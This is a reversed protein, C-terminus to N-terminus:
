SEDGPIDFERRFQEPEATVVAVEWEPPDAIWRRVVEYSTANAIEYRHDSIVDEASSYSTGGDWMNSGDLIEVDGDEDTIRIAYRWEGGAAKRAERAAVREREWREREEATPPTVDAPMTFM